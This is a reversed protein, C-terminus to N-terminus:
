GEFTVGSVFDSSTVTRSDAVTVIIGTSPVVAMLTVSM